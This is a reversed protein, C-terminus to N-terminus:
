PAAETRIGVRAYDTEGGTTVALVRYIYRTSPQIGNTDTYSTVTPGVDIPDDFDEGQVRRYIQYGTVTTTVDADWADWTLSISNHTATAQLNEPAELSGPTPTLTPTYTRTATPTM